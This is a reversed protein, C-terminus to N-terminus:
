IEVGLLQKTLLGLAYTVIVAIGTIIVNLVIRRRVNMGSIFAVIASVAVIMTGGTLVTPLVTHAGFLVPLVPVVAGVFYGIGVIAASVLAREGAESTVTEGLFRRREDETARLEAESNAGIYAGAAMSLAGAVGVTFGATVVAVTSNFAAFFGSVAGLIEVLGDNLGLFLNRVKEPNIRRDGEASVVTDEHKFEDELIERVAAGLPGHGYRKWVELYKRIGHVEIAELVVHIATSGFVRCVAVLVALKLRRAPDLTTVDKLGFFEQWFAAHRTEIPILADFIPQMSAPAIARLARYLSLDFIEDLVLRRGLRADLGTAAM